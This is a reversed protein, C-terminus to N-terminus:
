ENLVILNLMKNRNQKWFNLKASHLLLFAFKNETFTSNKVYPMNYGGYCLSLINRIEVFQDTALGLYSIYTIFFETDGSFFSFPNKEFKGWPSLTNGLKYRHTYKWIFSKGISEM